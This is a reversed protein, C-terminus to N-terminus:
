LVVVSGSSSVGCMDDEQSIMMYGQTGWYTSWSNKILWYPKGRLNGYGIVVVAHNLDSSNCKPEEYVGHSYFSFSRQSADIGVAVPGVFALAQKLEGVNTVNQYTKLTQLTKKM